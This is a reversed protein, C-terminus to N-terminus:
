ANPPTTTPLFAGLGKRNAEIFIASTCAQFQDPTMDLNLTLKAMERTDLAKKVAYLYLSQIKAMEAAFDVQAMLPAPAPVPRHIGPEGPAATSQFTNITSKESVSVGPANTKKDAVRKLGKGGILVIMGEWRSPDVGWFTGEIQVSQNDPDLLMARGPGRGRPSSGNRIIAKFDGNIWSNETPTMALIETITTTKSM